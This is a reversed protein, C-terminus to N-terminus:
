DRKSTKYLQRLFSFINIVRKVGNSRYPKTKLWYYQIGELEERTVPGTMEPSQYRVHSESSAVVTVEHGQRVWERALYYPRFEMGYTPSGAYHNILLINKPNESM